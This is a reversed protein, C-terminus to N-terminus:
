VALQPEREPLGPVVLQFGETVGAFVGRDDPQVFNPLCLVPRAAPSAGRMPVVALASPGASGRPRNNPALFTGASKRLETDTVCTISIRSRIASRLSCYTPVERPSASRM